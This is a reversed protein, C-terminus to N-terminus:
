PLSLPQDSQARLFLLLAARVGPKKIGGFSMKTGPAYAKPDALFADLSEYTWASGLDSIAGSYNFGPASGADRGVVNWLNPGVKHKGGSEISHCSACKKFAKGGAALDADALMDMVSMAVPEAAAMETAEGATEDEGSTIRLADINGEDVHVLMNAITNGGYILWATILLALGIKELMSQM